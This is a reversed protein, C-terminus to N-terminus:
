FPVENINNPMINSFTDLSQSTNTEKKIKETIFIQYDPDNKGQEGDRKKNPWIEISSYSSLPGSIYPIGSQTTNKWLGGIKTRNPKILPKDNLM